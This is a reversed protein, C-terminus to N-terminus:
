RSKGGDNETDPSPPKISALIKSAWRPEGNVPVLRLIVDQIGRAFTIKTPLPGVFDLGVVATSESFDVGATLSGSLDGTRHFDFYGDQLRGDPGTANMDPGVARVSVIPLAANVPRTTGDQPPLAGPTTVLYVMSPDSRGAAPNRSEVRYRYTTDPSASNDIYETVGASTSGLDTFTKGEASRQVEFGDEGASRNKWVVEVSHSSLAIAQVDTADLLPITISIAPATAEDSEGSDNYPLVRFAYTTGDKVGWAHAADNIGSYSCSNSGNSDVSDYIQWRGGPDKRDIEYGKAGIVAPWSLQMEAFSNAGSKLSAVNSPRTIAAATASSASETTSTIAAVKFTYSTGATLRTAKYSAMGIEYGNPGSDRSVTAMLEFHTGDTASYIRAGTAVTSDNEWTLDIESSSATEANLSEPPRLAITANAPKSSGSIGVVNAAVVRYYYTAGDAVGTDPYTTIPGYVEDIVTFYVGDTSRLIYYEDANADGAWSIDIENENAPNTPTATLSSPDRPRRLITLLAPKSGSGPGYEFSPGACTYSIKWDRAGATFEVVVLYDQPRLIWFLAAAVCLLSAGVGLRKFATRGPSSM